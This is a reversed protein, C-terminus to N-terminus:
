RSAEAFPDIGIWEWGICNAAELSTGSGCYPGLLVDGEPKSAVTVMRTLLALPKKTPYGM